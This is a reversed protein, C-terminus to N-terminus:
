CFISNVLRTLFIIIIVNYYVDRSVRIENQMDKLLKKKQLWESNLNNYMEELRIKDKYVEGAVCIITM